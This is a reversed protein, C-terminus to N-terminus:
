LCEIIGTFRIFLATVFAIVTFGGVGLCWMLLLNKLGENM